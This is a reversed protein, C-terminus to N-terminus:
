KNGQLTIACTTTSPPASKKGTTIRTMTRTHLDFAGGLPDHRARVRTPLDRDDYLLGHEADVKVVELPLQVDEVQHIVYQM